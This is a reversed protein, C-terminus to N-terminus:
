EKSILEVHDFYITGKAEPLPELQYSKLPFDIGANKDASEPQWDGRAFFGDFPCIIQKWGTFDDKLLFRWIENGNDKIDFAIAAGSNSGYIYFSIANYKDWKIEQPTVLWGARKADLDWGRAVWIYGGPVANYSVKLSETGFNSINADAAVEVESGNGAGFDVTGGPGGLVAGQVDDIVLNDAALCVGAASLMVALVLAMIKM